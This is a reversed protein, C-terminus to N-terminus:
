FRRRPRDYGGERRPPRAQPPRKKADEGFLMSLNIRGQLDMELVRVTVQQGITVVTTPDAIFETSMQSVHVMGEKGPLIEVFAGFPLIRKVIGQYVEEPKVEKIIGAVWKQAIEVKAPDTGAITVKGDDDVNIDCGTDAIIQRIVKGGPGIVEGIKDQPVLVMAVKPAYQSLSTRPTPLVALMKELIHLRGDKARTLTEAILDMSLGDIKVDLQIATIGDKTGAVKFDMDGCFDEIGIIDTLLVNTKGDSILGIALGAVPNKIPVGADMLALTSGCTSAMSTSGNSSMVESVLRITYPFNDQSPIVPLLAREALAGHGIERRSPFGVRGTEGVSYPPMSYHHMYRKATEGEPSEILQELSPSGLTAVTLVQTQGRKFMASGHTRPLLGVEGEIPRITQTDRGDPRKGKNLIDYRIQKDFLTSLAKEIDKRDYEESYKKAITDTLLVLEDGEREKAVRSLIIDAIDDKYEKELIKILKESLTNKEMKIKEKGVVKTLENICKIIKETEEKGFRIGNLVIEDPLEKAGAELMVVKEATASVILDLDSLPMEKTGPNSFYPQNGNQPPIYGVRVSGVPGNWPLPSISLAASTAIIALIDPENEGDVSLVTIIVQIDHHYNKDFLPRISRDILRAKLIADDSPRGERKVWRSGKIRGGAYLREVYEVSLPFYDLKSENSAAVVTAIVMTDGYRALVASTAQEAFRGVELTLTRSGIEVSKSITKM